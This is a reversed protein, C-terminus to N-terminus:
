GAPKRVCLVEEFDVRPAGQREHMRRFFSKREIREVVLEGDLSYQRSREEVLWARHRHLPEFGVAQCIAAWQRCFPVRQRERVFDRVVWVAVGGPRLAEYVQRVVLWASEWFTMGRDLGERVGGSIVAEVDGERLMAM